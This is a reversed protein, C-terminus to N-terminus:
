PATVADVVADTTLGEVPRVIGFIPISDALRSALTFHIDGVGLGEIMPRRYTAALIARFAAHGEMRSVTVEDVAGKRLLYLAGVEVTADHIRPARWLYKKGSDLLTALGDASKGANTIADEHLRITPYGPITVLRDGDPFVITKDDTVMTLGREVVAALTTSKGAGSQGAVLVAKGDLLFSSAHLTLLRRQHLLAGITSGFLYARVDRDSGWQEIAITTGGSVHYRAVGKVTQLWEDDSASWIPRTITPNDISEPTDELLVRVDAHGEETEALEPLPIESAFTLGYATYWHM